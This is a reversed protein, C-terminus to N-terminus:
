GYLKRLRISEHEAKYRLERASSTSYLRHIYVIEEVDLYDRRLAEEKVAVDILCPWEEWKITDLFDRKYLPLHHRSQTYGHLQNNQEVCELPFIADVDSDLYKRLSHFANPLVVDDDDVFTKWEYDGLSYGKKRALGLNGAIGELVHIEVPFGALRAAETTSRVAQRVWSQKATPLTLIHVDIM